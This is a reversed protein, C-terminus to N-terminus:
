RMSVRAQMLRRYYLVNEYIFLLLLAVFAVVDNIAPHSEPWLPGSDSYFAEM